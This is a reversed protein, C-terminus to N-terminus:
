KKSEIQFCACSCPRRELVRAPSRTRQPNPLGVPMILLSRHCYPQVPRLLPTSSEGECAGPGTTCPERQVPPASDPSVSAFLILPSPPCSAVKGPIKLQVFKLLCLKQLVVELTFLRSLQRTPTGIDHNLPVFSCCVLFVSSRRREQIKEEQRCVTIIIIRPLLMDNRLQAVVAKTAPEGRRM